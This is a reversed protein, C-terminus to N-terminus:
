LIESDCSPAPKGLIQGLFPGAAAAAQQERIYQLLSFRAAGVRRERSFLVVRSVYHAEAALFNQFMTLLQEKIQWVIFHFCIM